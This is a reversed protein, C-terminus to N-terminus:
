KDPGIGEVILFRICISHSRSELFLRVPSVKLRLQKRGLELANFIYKYTKDIM